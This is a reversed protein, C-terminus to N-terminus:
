RPRGVWSSWRLSKEAPAMYVPQVDRVGAVVALL